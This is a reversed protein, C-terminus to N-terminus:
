SVKLFGIATAGPWHLADRVCSEAPYYAPRRNLDHNETGLLLLLDNQGIDALRSESRVWLWLAEKMAAETEPKLRGPFHPSKSHFLCLTRVYDTVSFFTWPLNGPAEPSTRAALTPNSAIYDKAQKLLRANADDTKENLYLASLCWLNEGWVGQPWATDKAITKRLTEQRLNLSSTHTEAVLQALDSAENNEAAQLVAFSALLALANTLSLATRKIDNM